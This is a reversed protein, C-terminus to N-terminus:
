IGIISADTEELSFESVKIWNRKNIMKQENIDNKTEANDIKFNISKRKVTRNAENKYGIVNEETNIDEIMNMMISTDLDSSSIIHRLISLHGVSQETQYSIIPVTESKFDSDSVTIQELLSQFSNM